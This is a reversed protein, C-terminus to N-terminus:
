KRVPQVPASKSGRAAEVTKAAADTATQAAWRTAEEAKHAVVQAEHAPVSAAILLTRCVIRRHYPPKGRRHRDLPQACEM